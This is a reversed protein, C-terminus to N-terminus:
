LRWSWSNFTRDTLSFWTVGFEKWNCWLDFMTMYWFCGCVSFCFVFHLCSQVLIKKLRQNMHLQKNLLLVLIIFSLLMTFGEVLWVEKKKLSLCFSCVQSLSDCTRGRCQPACLQTHHAAYTHVWDTRSPEESTEGQEQHGWEVRTGTESTAGLVFACLGWDYSFILMWILVCANLFSNRTPFQLFVEISQNVNIDFVPL